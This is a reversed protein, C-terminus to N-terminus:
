AILEKVMRVFGAADEVPWSHPAGPLDVLPGAGASAVRAAWDRSGLSDHEAHVVTVAAPVSPLVLELPLRLASRMGLAIRPIGAHAWDPIQSLTSPADDAGDGGLWAGVLRRWTRKAPDVTPSVLLLRRIRHTRASAVAAAQTGVSLGVLLDVDIGRRDIARALLAGYRELDAPAGAWAPPRLLAVDVGAARLALAAPRAYSRVALGPVVLVRPEGSM